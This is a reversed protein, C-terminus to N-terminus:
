RYHDFDRFNTAQQSFTRCPMNEKIGCVIIGHAVDSAVLATDKERLRTM